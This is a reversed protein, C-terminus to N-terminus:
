VYLATHSSAWRHIARDTYSYVKAIAGAIEYLHRRSEYTSWVFMGAIAIAWTCLVLPFYARPFGGKSSKKQSAGM